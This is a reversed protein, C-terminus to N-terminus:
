EVTSSVKRREEMDLAAKLADARMASDCLKMADGPLFYIARVIYGLALFIVGLASLSGAAIEITFKTQLANLDTEGVLTKDPYLLGIILCIISLVFIVWGSVIFREGDSRYLPERGLHDVFSHDGM